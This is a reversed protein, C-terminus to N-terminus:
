DNDAFKSNFVQCNISISVFDVWVMGIYAMFIKNTLIENLYIM